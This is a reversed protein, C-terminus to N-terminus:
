APNSPPTYSGAVSAHAKQETMTLSLVLPAVMAAAAGAIFRRRSPGAAAVLDKAQLELVAEEAADESINLNAALDTLSTPASCADWVAGATPKLAFVIEKEHDILIKSGDPLANVVLADSLLREIEM